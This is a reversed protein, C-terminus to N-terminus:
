VFIFEIIVEDIPTTSFQLAMKYSNRRLYKVPIKM